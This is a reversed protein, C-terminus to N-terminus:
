APGDFISRPAAWGGLRPLGEAGADLRTLAHILQELKFTMDIVQLHNDGDRAAADEVAETLDSGALLASMVGPTTFLRSSEDHVDSRRRLSVTKGVAASLESDTGIRDIWPLQKVLGVEYSRAAGGSTVEEGAAVMADICGQMLRSTLWGLAALPNGSPFVAPGKHGTVVGSPLVRIGFGSATRLPWTLGPRFFYQINQPRSGAYARIRKGDDQWDVVLHIDAWYPSYGGGKAFPAWRRGLKTEDRRRAIRAPDVEWFARVFRFDDGTSLGIRVEAGRGELSRSDVFLRRLAEGM